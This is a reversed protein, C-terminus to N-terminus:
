AAVVIRRLQEHVGDNVMHPELVRAFAVARAAFGNCAGSGQLRLTAEIGDLISFLGLVGVDGGVEADLECMGDGARKLVFGCFRVASEDLLVGSMFAMGVVRQLADGGVCYVVDDALVAKVIGQAFGAFKRGGMDLKVSVKEYVRVAVDVVKDLVANEGGTACVGIASALGAHAMVAKRIEKSGRRIAFDLVGHLAGCWLGIGGVDQRRVANMFRGVVDLGFLRVEKAIRWEMKGKENGQNGDAGGQGTWEGGNGVRMGGDDVSQLIRTACRCVVAGTERDSMKVLGVGQVGFRVANTFDGICLAAEALVACVEASRISRLRGACEALVRRVAVPVKTERPVIGDRRLDSWKELLVRLVRTAVRMADNTEQVGNSLCPLAETVVHSVRVLLQLLVDTSVRGLIASTEGGGTEGSMGRSAVSRHYYFPVRSVEDVKVSGKSRTDVQVAGRVVPTLCLELATLVDARYRWGTTAQLMDALSPLPSHPMDFLADASVDGARCVTTIFRAAHVRVERRIHSLAALVHCCVLPLLPAADTGGDRRTLVASLLSAAAVRVAVAEDSLAAASVSVAASLRTRLAAHAVAGPSLLANAMANLANTRTTINHHSTRALLETLTLGTARHKPDTHDDFEYANAVSTARAQNPVHIQRTKVNTDTHNEARQRKGLKIKKKAFDQEQRQKAAAKRKSRGM